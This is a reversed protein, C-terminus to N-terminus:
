KLLTTLNFERNQYQEFKKMFEVNSVFRSVLHTKIFEEYKSLPLGDEEILYFEKFGLCELTIIKSNNEFEKISFESNELIKKSLHHFINDKFSVKKKGM